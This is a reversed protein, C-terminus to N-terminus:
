LVSWRARHAEVASMRAKIAQLASSLRGARWELFRLEMDEDSMVYLKALAKIADETAMNQGSEIATFSGVTLGCAKAADERSVGCAQRLIILPNRSARM